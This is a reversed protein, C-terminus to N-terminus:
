ETVGSNLVQCGVCVVIFVEDDGTRLHAYVDGQKFECGCEACVMGRQIDDADVPYLGTMEPCTLAHVATKTECGPAFCYVCVDYRGSM